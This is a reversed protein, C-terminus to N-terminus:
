ALRLAIAKAEERYRAAEVTKATVKFALAQRVLDLGRSRKDSSELAQKLEDVKLRHACFSFNSFSQM